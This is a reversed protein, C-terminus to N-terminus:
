IDSEIICIRMAYDFIKAFHPYSSAITNFNVKIMELVEASLCNSFKAM